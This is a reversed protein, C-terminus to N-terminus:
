GCMISISQLGGRLSVKTAYGLLSRAKDASCTANKVEQPRDAMFVPDLDFDLLDAITEALEIIQVFEEDPGINIV